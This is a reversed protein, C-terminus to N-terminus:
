GPSVLWMGLESVTPIVTVSGVMVVTEQSISTNTFWAEEQVAITMSVLVPGMGGVPITLKAYEPEAVPDRLELPQLRELEAASLAEQWTVNRGDVAPMASM